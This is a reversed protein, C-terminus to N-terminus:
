ANKASEKVELGPVSVAIFPPIEADVFKTDGVPGDSLKLAQVEVRTSSIVRTVRGLRISPIFGSDSGSQGGGEGAPGGIPFLVISSGRSSALIRAPGSESSTLFDCEGSIPTAFKHDPSAISVRCAAQGSVIVTMPEGNKVSYPTRVIGFVPLEGEASAQPKIAKMISGHGIDGLALGSLEVIDGDKRDESTSNIAKVTRVDQSAGEPSISGGGSATQAAELHSAVDNLLGASIKSPSDGRRVRPYVM